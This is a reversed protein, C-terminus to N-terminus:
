SFQLSICRGIENVYPAHNVESIDGSEILTGGPIILADLEDNAKVGNVLGNSKVIDTPLNGFDEFGPVAGKVYTIGIKVM